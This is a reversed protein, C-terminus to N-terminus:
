KGFVERLKRVGESVNQRAAAETCEMAKAIERYALDDVFRYAVAARQKDPLSRVASWVEPDREETARGARDPLEQTPRPNKKKGRHADIAKRHAITLVWSRLNSGHRLRPYARLAALFTEQFCDEADAPGVSAVLFRWVDEKHDDMFVQFPALM